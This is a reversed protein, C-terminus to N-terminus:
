VASKSYRWSVASCIPWVVTLQLVQQVMIGRYLIHVVDRYTCSVVARCLVGVRVFIYESLCSIRPFVRAVVCRGDQGQGDTLIGTGDPLLAGTDCGSRARGM